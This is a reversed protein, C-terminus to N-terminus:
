IKNKYSLCKVFDLHIDFLPGGEPPEYNIYNITIDSHPCRMYMYSAISLPIGTANPYKPSSGQLLIPRIIFLFNGSSLIDLIYLLITLTGTNVIIQVLIINLKFFYKPRYNFKNTLENELGLRASIGPKRPVLRILPMSKAKAGTDWQHSEIPM